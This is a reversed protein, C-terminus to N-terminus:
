LHEQRKYKWYWHKDPITLSFGKDICWVNLRDLLQCMEGRDKLIETLSMRSGNENKPYFYLMIFEHAFDKDWDKTAVLRPKGNIDTTYVKQKLGCGNAWNSVEGMWMWYTNRQSTTGKERWESIELKYAKNSQVLETLKGVVWKLNGTTLQIAPQKAM